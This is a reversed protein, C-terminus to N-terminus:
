EISQQREHMLCQKGVVSLPGQLVYEGFGAVTLTSDLDECAVDNYTSVVTYQATSTGVLVGALLLFGTKMSMVRSYWDIASPRCTGRLEDRSM